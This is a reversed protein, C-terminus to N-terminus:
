SELAAGESRELFSRVRSDFALKREYFAGHKAGPILELDRDPLGAATERALESTFPLPYFVARAGM